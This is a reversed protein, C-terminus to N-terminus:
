SAREDLETKELIKPNLIILLESPLKCVEEVYRVNVGEIMDPPPEIQNVPVSMVDGIREVLLSIPEERDGMIVNNYRLQEQEESGAADEMLGGKLEIKKGLNIATLIQGRLNIVGAVYSPALPVPTIDLAKNIEIVDDIPLGFFHRGFYFTVFQRSEDSRIDVVKDEASMEMKSDRM